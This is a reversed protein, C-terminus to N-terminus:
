SRRAAVKDWESDLRRLLGAQDGDIVYQQLFQELPVTLPIHHDAYGTLRGREFYPMLGALAPDDSVADVTPPVAQQEEAYAAMVEPSMLHEVFALSEEPHEPERAMTLAVDVGSVLRTASPDEGAPLAFTGIDFDPEFGSIAPLAFSGQLYMAAEGKAFAQNGDDYTRSFRDRQGYGFLEGLRAAVPPYAEAFTTRGAERRTFFDPPSLNAALANFTPLTTWADALTVYFPDVGAGRFTEAAAVLQSWTTPVEVGHRRFLDKNYIVGSANSSFPLGNREGRRYVGLDDLIRQIPPSVGAAGPMAAFDYFVGASALEGFVGNGNLAIVDPIDNKVLRARIASEAVPSHNQTVDIGPHAAEFREIIRDFTEIAEPKFQFFELKVRDDAPEGSGCASLLLVATLVLATRKM